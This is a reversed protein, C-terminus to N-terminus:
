FFTSILSLLKQGGGLDGTRRGVCRGMRWQGSVGRGWQLVRRNKPSKPDLGIPGPRDSGVHVTTPGRPTLSACGHQIQGLPYTDPLHVGCARASARWAVAVAVAVALGLALGLGLDTTPM